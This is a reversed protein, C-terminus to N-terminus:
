APTGEPVPLPAGIRSDDLTFPYVTLLSMFARLATADAEVPILHWGDPRIHVVGCRDVDPMPRDTEGDVWHSCGRYAALQLAVERYVGGTKYDLLWRSGDRLDAISDLRGAYPFWPDDHYVMAETIVPRADWRDLFDAAYEILTRDEDDAPEVAGTTILAEAAAHIRTGREAAKDRAAWPAAAAQSVFGQFGLAALQEPNNAAWTAAGKAAWRPIAPKDLMGTITTVSPCAKGDLAYRHGQAQFVLRSV